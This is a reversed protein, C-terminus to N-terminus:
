YVQDFEVCIQVRLKLLLKPDYCYNESFKYIIFLSIQKSLNEEFLKTLIIRLSQYNNEYM